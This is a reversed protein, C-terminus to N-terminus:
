PASKTQRTKIIELAKELNQGSIEIRGASSPRAPEVAIKYYSLFIVADVATLIFFLVLLALMAYIIIRERSVRLFITGPM